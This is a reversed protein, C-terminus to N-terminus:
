KPQGTDSPGGEVGGHVHHMVSIGGATLDNAVTGTGGVILDGTIETTPSDIKVGNSKLTSQGTVTMTFNGGVTGILDLPTNVEIKDRRFVIRQGLDDYMAVEGEALSKLRYRKDAACILVGNSRDGGFFLAIGESGPHPHATWGYPEIHEINGKIEGALLGIQLSQTKTNPNILKLTARCIANQLLKFLNM